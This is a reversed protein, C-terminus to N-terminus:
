GFYEKVMVEIDKVEPPDDHKGTALYRGQYDGNKYPIVFPTVFGSLRVGGCHGDFVVPIFKMKPKDTFVIGFTIEPHAETYDTFVEVFEARCRRCVRTSTILLVKEPYSDKEEGEIKIYDQLNDDHIEIMNPRRRFLNFFKGELAIRSLYETAIKDIAECAADVSDVTLSAKLTSDTDTTDEIIESDIKRKRMVGRLQKTLRFKNFLYQTDVLIGDQEDGQRTGLHAIVGDDVIDITFYDNHPDDSSEIRGRAGRCFEGDASPNGDADCRESYTVGTEFLLYPNFESRHEGNLMDQHENGKKVMMEIHETVKAILEAQADNYPKLTAGGERAEFELM